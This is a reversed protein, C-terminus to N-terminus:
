NQPSPTRRPGFGRLPNFCPRAALDLRRTVNEAAWLRPASQFAIMALIDQGAPTRRPGFGRLPNFSKSPNKRGESGFTRRPGFGRLPNFCSRKRSKLKKMANEAAWLRPASQFQPAHPRLSRAFLNEAAWLRPASQFKPALPQRRPM